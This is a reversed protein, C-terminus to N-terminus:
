AHLNGVASCCHAMDDPTFSVQQGDLRGGECRLPCARRPLRGHGLWLECVPEDCCLEFIVHPLGSVPAPYNVSWTEQCTWGWQQPNSLKPSIIPHAQVDRCQSHTQGSAQKLALSWQLNGWCNDHKMRGRSRRISAWKQNQCGGLFFKCTKFPLLKMKTAYHRETVFM